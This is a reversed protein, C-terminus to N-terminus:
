SVHSVVGGEEQSDDLGLDTDKILEEVLDEANVRTVGVRRDKVSEDIKQSGFTLVFSKTCSVALTLDQSHQVSVFTWIM